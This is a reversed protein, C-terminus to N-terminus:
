DSLSLQSLPISPIAERRRKSAPMPWCVSALDCGRFRRLVFFCTLSWVSIMLAPPALCTNPRPFTPRPAISCWGIPEGGAYALLGVPAGAMVRARM